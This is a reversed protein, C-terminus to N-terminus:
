APTGSLMTRLDDMNRLHHLGADKLDEVLRHPMHGGFYVSMNGEATRNVRTLEDWVSLDYRGSVAGMVIVGASLRRAAEVVEEAPIGIGLVVPRWGAAFTHIASAILGLEWRQGLPAALVCLPRNTQDSRAILLSSLFTRLTTHLFSVHVASLTGADVLDHVQHDLPFVYHDMLDLRGHFLTAGELVRYLDADDLRHVADVADEILPGRARETAVDRNPAGEHAPGRRTGDPRSGPAGIRSSLDQLEEYGLSALEGIRYGAEVLSALLTLKAVLDESYRRRGSEDRAPAIGEYRREWARLTGPSLGTRKAVVQIPYEM